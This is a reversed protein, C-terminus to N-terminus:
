HSLCFIPALSTGRRIRITKYLWCICTLGWFSTLVRIRRRSLQHKTCKYDLSTSIIPKTLIVSFFRVFQYGLQKWAQITKSCDKEPASKSTMVTRAFIIIVPICPERSCLITEDAFFLPVKCQNFFKRIMTMKTVPSSNKAFTLDRSIIHYKYIRLRTTRM